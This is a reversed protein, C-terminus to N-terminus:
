YASFDYFWNVCREIHLIMFNFFNFIMFMKTSVKTIISSPVCMDIIDFFICPVSYFIISFSLNSSSRFDKSIM